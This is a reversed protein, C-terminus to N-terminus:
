KYPVSKLLVALSYYRHRRAPSVASIYAPAYYAAPGHRLVSLQRNRGPGPDSALICCPPLPPAADADIFGDATAIVRRRAGLAAAGGARDSVSASIKLRSGHCPDGSGLVAPGFFGDTLLLPATLLWQHYAYFKLWNM